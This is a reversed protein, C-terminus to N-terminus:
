RKLYEEALFLCDWMAKKSGGNNCLLEALSTWYIRAPMGAWRFLDFWVWNDAGDAYAVKAEKLWEEKRM